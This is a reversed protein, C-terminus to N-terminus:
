CGAHCQKVVVERVYLTCAMECFKCVRNCLALYFDSEDNIDVLSLNYPSLSIESTLIHKGSKERDLSLILFHDNLKGNTHMRRGVMEKFLAELYLKLTHRNNIIDIEILNGDVTYQYVTNVLPQTKLVIDVTETTPSVWKASLM